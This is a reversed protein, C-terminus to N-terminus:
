AGRGMRLSDWLEAFADATRGGADAFSARLPRALGDLSTGRVRALAALAGAAALVLLLPLLWGPADSGSGGSVPPSKVEALRVRFNPKPSPPRPVEAKPGRGGSGGGASPLAPVLEGERTEPSGPSSGGCGERGGSLQDTLGPAYQQVDPPLGNLGNRLQKDSYRCPDIQGDRRFDDLPGAAAPPGIALTALLATLLIRRV